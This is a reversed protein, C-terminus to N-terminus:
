ESTCLFNLFEGVKEQRHRHTLEPATFASRLFVSLDMPLEKFQTPWNTPLQTFYTALQSVLSNAFKGVPFAAAFHFEHPRGILSTIKLTLGFFSPLTVFFRRALRRLCFFDKFDQSTSVNKQKM